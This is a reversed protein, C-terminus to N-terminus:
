QFKLSRVTRCGFCAKRCAGLAVFCSNLRGDDDEWYECKTEPDEAELAALWGPIFKFNDHLKGELSELIKDKARWMQKYTTSNKHFGKELKQLNKISLTRDGCVVDIQHNMMVLQLKAADVLSPIAKRIGIIPLSVLIHCM